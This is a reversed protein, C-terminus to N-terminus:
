QFLQDSLDKIEKTSLPILKVKTQELLKGFSSEQDQLSAIAKEYTRAQTTIILYYDREMTGSMSQYDLIYEECRQQLLGSLNFYREQEVALAEDNKSFSQISIIQIPDKLAFLASQLYRKFAYIEEDSSMSLNIPEIRFVKSYNGDLGVVIGASIDKGIAIQKEKKSTLFRFADYMFIHLPRGYVDFMFPILSFGIVLQIVIKQDPSLGYNSSWLLFSIISGIAILLNRRNLIFSLLGTEKNLKPPVIEQM